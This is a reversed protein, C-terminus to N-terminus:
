DMREINGGKTKKERAITRNGSQPDVKKQKESIPM